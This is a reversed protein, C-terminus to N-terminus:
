VIGALDQEVCDLTQWEADPISTAVWTALTVGARITESDVSLLFSNNTFQVMNILAQAQTATGVRLFLKQVSNDTILPDCFYMSHAGRPGNPTPCNNYTPSTPDDSCAVSNQFRDPDNPDGELKFNTRWLAFLVYKQATNIAFLYDHTDGVPKMVTYVSRALNRKTNFTLNADDAYDEKVIAMLYDIEQDYDPNQPDIIQGSDRPVSQYMITKLASSVFEFSDNRTVQDSVGKGYSSAFLLLFGTLGSIIVLLFLADTVAAQAHNDKRRAHFKVM